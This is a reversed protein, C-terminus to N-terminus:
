RPLGKQEKPPDLTVYGKVSYGVWTRQNGRNKAVAPLLRGFLQLELGLAGPLSTWSNSADSYRVTM